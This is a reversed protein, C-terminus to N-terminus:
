RLQCPAGSWGKMDFPMHAYLAESRFLVTSAGKAAYGYKHLDASISRVAPVEFDFPPVAVG